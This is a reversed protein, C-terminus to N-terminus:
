VEYKGTLNYQEMLFFQHGEVMIPMVSGQIPKYTVVEGAEYGIVRSGVRVVLAKLTRDTMASEPIYLGSDTKVGTLTVGDVEFKDLNQNADPLVEVLLLTGEPKFKPKLLETPMKIQLVPEKEKPIESTFAPVSKEQYELIKGKKDSM